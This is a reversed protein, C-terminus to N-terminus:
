NKDCKSVAQQVEATFHLIRIEYNTTGFDRGQQIWETLDPCTEVLTHIPQATWSKQCAKSVHQVKQMQGCLHALSRGFLTLIWSQSIYKQRASPKNNDQWM